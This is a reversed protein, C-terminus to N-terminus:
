RIRPVVMIRKEQQKKKKQKFEGGLTPHQRGRWIGQVDATIKVPSWGLRKQHFLFNLRPKQARGTFV